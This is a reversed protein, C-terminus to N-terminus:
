LKHYCCHSYKFCMATSLIWQTLTSFHSHSGYYERGGAEQIVHIKSIHRVYPLIIQMEVTAQTRIMVIHICESLWDTQKAFHGIKCVNFQNNLYKINMWWQSSEIITARGNEPQMFRIHLSKFEVWLNIQNAKAVHM